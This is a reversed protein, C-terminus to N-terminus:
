EAIRSIQMRSSYASLHMSTTPSSPVASPRGACRVSPPSSYQTACTVVGSARVNGSSIAQRLMLSGSICRVRARVFLALLVSLYTAAEPSFAKGVMGHLTRQVVGLLSHEAQIPRALSQLHGAFVIRFKRWSGHRTSCQNSGLPMEIRNAREIQAADRRLVSFPRLVSDM